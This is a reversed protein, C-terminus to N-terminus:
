ETPAELGEIWTDGGDVSTWVGDLVGVVIKNSDQNSSMIEVIQTDFTNKLTFTGLSNESKYLNGSATGYWAIESYPYDQFNRLYDMWVATIPEDGDLVKNWEGGGSWVHWLNGSEMGAIAMKAKPDAAICNVAITASSGEGSVPNAVVDEGPVYQETIEGAEGSYTLKLWPCPSVMGEEAPFGTPPNVWYPNVAGYFGLTCKQDYGVPRNDWNYDLPTLYNPKFRFGIWTWPGNIAAQVGSTVVVPDLWHPGQSRFDSWRQYFDEISNPNQVWPSDAYDEEVLTQWPFYLPGYIGKYYVDIDMYVPNVNLALDANGLMLSLEASQLTGSATTPVLFKIFFDYSWCEYHDSILDLPFYWQKQCVFGSHYYNNHIYVTDVEDDHYKYSITGGARYSRPPDVWWVETAM